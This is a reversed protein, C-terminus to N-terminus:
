NRNLDALEKLSESVLASQDAATLERQLIKGAVQTALDATQEYIEGIAQEKATNVDAAARDKMATIDTEAQSKLQASLRAAETRSQEIIQQSQKQAEALQQKYEELKAQAERAASEASELDDKIKAERAQLGTIIPGWAFKRLLILLVTFAIIAAGAQYLSGAFLNDESGSEALAAPAAGLAVGASLCTLKIRHM